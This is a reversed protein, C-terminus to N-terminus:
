LQYEGVKTMAKRAQEAYYNKVFTIMQKLKLKETENTAKFNRIEGEIEEIVM